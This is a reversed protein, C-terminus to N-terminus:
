LRTMRLVLFVPVNGVGGLVMYEDPVLLAGTEFSQSSGDGQFVCDFDIREINLAGTVEDFNVPRLELQISGEAFAFRDSFVKPALANGQVVGFSMRRFGVVPVLSGLDQVLDKPLNQDLDSASLGEAALTREDYGRLLMYTTRVQPAPRDVSELLAGIEAIRAQTDRVIVINTQDLITVSPLEATTGDPYMAVPVPSVSRFPRLVSDITDRGVHRLQFQRTLLPEPTAVTSARLEEELRELLALVGPMAEDTCAVVISADGVAQLAAPYDELGPIASSVPWGQGLIGSAVAQLEYASVRDTRFYEIRFTPEVYEDDSEQPAAIPAPAAPESPRTAVFASTLSLFFTTGIALHSTSLM